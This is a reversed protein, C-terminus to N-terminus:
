KGIKAYPERVDLDGKALLDAAKTHQAKDADIVPMDARPPAGKPPTSKQIMQLRTELVERGGLDALWKSAKAKNYFKPHMNKGNLISEIADDTTAKFINVDGGSPAGRRKNGFVDGLARLVPVLDGIKLKAEIGTITAKPDNFMTAAWRHHGDLIRKDKSVIAGLDGGRVGNIAMGLTKGLYVSDQSAKLNSAKWTKPTAQVIDDTEDGDMKGKRTFIKKLATTIPNPFYSKNIEKTRLEENLHQKFSKM